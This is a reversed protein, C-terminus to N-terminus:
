WVIKGCFKLGRHTRIEIYTKMEPNKKTQFPLLYQEVNVIFISDERDNVWHVYKNVQLYIYLSGM